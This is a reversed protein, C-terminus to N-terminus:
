ARLANYRRRARMYLLWGVPGLLLVMIAWGARPGFPCRSGPAPRWSGSRPSVLVHVLPCAFGALLITWAILSEATMIRVIARQDGAAM